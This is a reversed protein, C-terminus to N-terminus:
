SEDKGFALQNHSALRVGRPVRPDMKFAMQHNHFDPNIFMHIAKHSLRASVVMFKKIKLWRREEEREAAAGKFETFRNM